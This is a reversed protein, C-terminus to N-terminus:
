LVALCVSCVSLVPYITVPPHAAYTILIRTIPAVPCFGVTRAAQTEREMEMPPGRDPRDREAM